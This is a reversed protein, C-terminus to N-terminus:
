RASLAASTPRIRSRRSIQSASSIAEDTMPRPSLRAPENPSSASGREDPQLRLLAPRLVRSNDHAREVANPRDAHHRAASLGGQRHVAPARAFWAQGPTRPPFGRMRTKQRSLSSPRAVDQEDHRHIRNYQFPLSLTERQNVGVSNVGHRAIATCTFAGAHTREQKSGTSHRLPPSCKRSYSVRKWHQYPGQSWNGAMRDVRRECSDSGPLLLESSNVRLVLACTLPAM